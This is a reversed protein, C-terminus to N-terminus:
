GLYWLSLAFSGNYLLYQLAYNISSEFSSKPGYCVDQATRRRVAKLASM